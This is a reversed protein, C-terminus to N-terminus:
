NSEAVESARYSMEEDIAQENYDIDVITPYGLTEHYTVSLSFADRDIADQIAAFIGDITLVQDVVAPHPTEGTAAVTASVIEGDVVEVNLAEVSICFCLRQFRFSYDEIGSAQWKSLNEELDNETPDFLGSCGCMLFVLFVLTIKGVARPYRVLRM